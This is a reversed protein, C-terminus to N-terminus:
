AGKNRGYEALLLADVAGNNAKVQALKKVEPWRRMALAAEADKNGKGRKGTGLIAKQWAQPTVLRFPCGSIELAGLLRGFGRGYNFMSVVGQGPMAHAKELICLPPPEEKAALDLVVGRLINFVTETDIEKGLLPMRACFALEGTHADIAALGGTAGPDIGLFRPSGAGEVYHKLPM